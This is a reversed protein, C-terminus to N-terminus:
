NAKLKLIGDNETYSGLLHENSAVTSQL